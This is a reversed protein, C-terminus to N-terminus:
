EPTEVDVEISFRYLANESVAKGYKECFEDIAEVIDEAANAIADNDIDHVTREGVHTHATLRERPSNIHQPDIRVMVNM